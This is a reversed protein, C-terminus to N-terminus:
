EYKIDDLYISLGSPSQNTNTVWVFGGIVRSLDRDTLDITVKQWANNLTIVGTSVPPQISDSYKGTIGGVKFEAKEGGKEGRAWFSLKKYGIMNRSEPMDGWNKDPYQWYIGAWGNGQSRAASYTIRICTPESHVNNTWGDDFTIDGLDGMWGSAYFADSIDLPNTTSTSTKAVSTGTQTKDTTIPISETTAVTRTSPRFVYVSIGIILFIVGIIGLVMRMWNALSREPTRPFIIFGIVAFFIFVIGAILLIAEIGLNNM